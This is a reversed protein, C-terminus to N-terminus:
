QRTSLRTFVEGQCFGRPRVCVGGAARWSALCTLPGDDTRQCQFSYIYISSEQTITASTPVNTFEIACKTIIYRASLGARQKGRATEIDLNRGLVCLRMHISMKTVRNSVRKGKGSCMSRFPM